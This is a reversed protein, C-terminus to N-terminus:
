LSYSIELHLAGHFVTDATEEWLETNLGPLIMAKGTVLLVTFERLLPISSGVAIHGSFNELDPYADKSQLRSWVQAQRWGREVEKCRQFPPPTSTWYEASHGWRLSAWRVVPVVWSLSFLPFRDEAWMPGTTEPPASSGVTVCEPSGVCQVALFGCQSEPHGELTTRLPLRSPTTM